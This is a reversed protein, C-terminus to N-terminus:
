KKATNWKLLKDIVKRSTQVNVVYNHYEKTDLRNLVEPKDKYHTKMHEVHEAIEKSSVTIKEEKAIERILLSAKVRKIADPLMDLTLQTETKNISKLYDEYKGGQETIGQRLEGLMNQSEQEILMQPIDGFKTKEIIKEIMEKEVFRAQEQKKQSEIGKKINDKMEALNKLGFGKAFEDNLEPLVREYIEQIKVKFEVMKGAINKMYHDKPYPLSFEKTEGKKAGLLEKDFGPVLHDEGIIVGTSKAQGGEVPVKDHFMKIDVLVKDKDQIARDAIMEKVRSEKLEVLTKEIDDKEVKIKEEKIGLDKYKGIKIEPILSVIIKYEVPNGPALKTIDIKPQGILRGEGVELLAKELTKNIAIRASEELISMEGIKQKLVDFPIKGSRFGDIKVEKSIKKAGQEIYPKFEDVSLEVLLEVQSKKEESKTVKM